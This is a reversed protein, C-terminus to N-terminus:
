HCLSWLLRQVTKYNSWVTTLPPTSSHRASGLESLFRRHDPSCRERRRHYFIAASNAVNNM